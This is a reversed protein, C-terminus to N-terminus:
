NANQKTAIQTNEKHPAQEVNIKVGERCFVSLVIFFISLYHLAQPAYTNQLCRIRSQPNVKRLLVKPHVPKTLKILELKDTKITLVKDQKLFRQRDWSLKRNNKM